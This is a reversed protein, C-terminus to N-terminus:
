RRYGRDGRNHDRYGGRDNGRYGRDYGGRHGWDRHGRGYYGRDYHRGYNYGYGYGGYYVPTYGYSYSGGYYAPAYYDPGSDYGYYGGRDYGRDSAIAAGVGLGVIGAVLAANGNGHHRYRAEAPATMALTSGALVTAAVIGKFVASM